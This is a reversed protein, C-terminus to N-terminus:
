KDMPSNKHAYTYIGKDDARPSRPQKAGEICGRIAFRHEHNIM